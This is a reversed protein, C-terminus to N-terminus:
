QNNGPGPYWPSEDFTGDKCIIKYDTIPEEYCRLYMVGPEGWDGFHTISEEINFYEKMFEESFPECIDDETNIMVGDGTFYVLPDSAKVIGDDENFFQEPSISEPKRTNNAWSVSVPEAAEEKAEGLQKKLDNHIEEPDGFIMKAMEAKQKENYNVTENSSKMLHPEDDNEDDWMEYEESPMNILTVIDDDSIDVDDQRKSLEEEIIEDVENLFKKKAIFFGTFGGVVAGGIFYLLKKYDM